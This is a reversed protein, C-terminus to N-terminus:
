NGTRLRGRIQFCLAKLILYTMYSPHEIPKRISIWIGPLVAAAPRLLYIPLCSSSLQLASRGISLYASLRVTKLGQFGSRHAIRELDLAAQTDDFARRELEVQVFM